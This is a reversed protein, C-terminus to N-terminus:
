STQQRQRQADNPQDVRPRDNLLEKVHKDYKEKFKAEGEPAYQRVQLIRVESDVHITSGIHFIGSSAVASIRVGQVFITSGENTRDLQITTPEFAPPEFPEYFTRYFTDNYETTVFYSFERQLALANSRTRIWESDGIQFVSTTNVTIIDVQPVVSTRVTM